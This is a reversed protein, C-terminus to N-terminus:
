RNQKLFETIADFRKGTEIAVDTEPKILPPMYMRFVSRGKRLVKELMKGDEVMANATEQRPYYNFSPLKLQAAVQLPDLSKLYKLAAASSGLAGTLEHNDRDSPTLEELEYHRTVMPIKFNVLANFAKSRATAHIATIGGLGEGLLIAQQPDIMGQAALWAAGDELDGVMGTALQLDGARQFEAGLGATGRVHIRATAFGRSAFYQAVPDYYNTAMPGPINSGLQIILPPHPINAPQTIRGTITLGDRAKFQFTQSSALKVSQLATRESGILRLQGTKRDLLYFGGADDAGHTRVIVRQNDRSFSVFELDSNPLAAAVKRYCEEAEPLFFELHQRDAEWRAAGPEREFGWDMVSTVDATGCHSLGTMTATALDFLALRAYNRSTRDVVILRKQDPMIALPYIEANHIGPQDRRQWPERPRTRWIFTWKEDHYGSGAWVTGDPGIVWHDIGRITPEADESKGTRLDVRRLHGDDWPILVCYPDNPLMSALDGTRESNLIALDNVKHTSLNISRLQPHYRDEFHNIPYEDDHLTIVALLEDNKWAFGTVTLKPEKILVDAKKSELDLLVLAFHRHDFRTLACLMRGNPSLLPRTFSPLQFFWDAPPPPTAGPAVRGALALAGLVILSRLSGVANWKRLLWIM